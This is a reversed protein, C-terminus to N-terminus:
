PTSFSLSGPRRCHRASHPRLGLLNTPPQRLQGKLAPPIKIVLKLSLRTVMCLLNQHGREGVRPRVRRTLRYLHAVLIKTPKKNNTARINFGTQGIQNIRFSRRSYLSTIKLKIQKNFTQIVLIDGSYLM